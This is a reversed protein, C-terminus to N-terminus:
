INIHAMFDLNGSGGLEDQPIVPESDVPDPPTYTLDNFTVLRYMNEMMHDDKDIPKNEKDYFYTKIERRFRNLHPMVIIKRPYKPNWIDQTTIIGETKSKSAHIVNLGHLMLTEAWCRGTDPNEIWAIPDCLEFGCRVRRTRDKIKMALEAIMCKEFIEDYFFIEGLPSLAIFLVAHPIQPHPDIAYGCLYDRSPTKFDLWGIPPQSSKWLHVNEDYHGYVKRGFALPKGNRRADRQDEPLTALYEEKAVEDLLPNDDMTAEFWWYLHPKKEANDIMHEYMWPYGLPTLLWWSFGGRDLLGRSVATWLEQPVPEDIHIFDWDSSEFSAPNNFYSRVTDFIVTSVRKRGDLKVEVTISNIRGKQEKTVSKIVDTPLFEFFKGPRDGDEQNTFIEDVKDWDEAIVLGKVGHAPIGLRRLPHDKPFFPREGILWCCDEVVGVTSKGFRNGCFGARNRTAAHEFFAYQKPNPVFNELKRRLLQEEKLLALKLLEEKLAREEAEILELENDM